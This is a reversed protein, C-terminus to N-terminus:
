WRLGPAGATYVKASRGPRTRAVKGARFMRAAHDFRGPGVTICMSASSRVTRATSVWQGYQASWHPIVRVRSRSSVTM